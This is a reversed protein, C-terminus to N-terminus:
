DHRFSGLEKPKERGSLERMTKGAQESTKAAVNRSAEFADEKIPSIGAKREATRELELVRRKAAEKTDRPPTGSFYAIAAILLLAGGGIKLWQQRTLDGPKRPPPQQGGPGGLDDKVRSVQTVSMYRPSARVARSPAAAIGSRLLGAAARPTSAM